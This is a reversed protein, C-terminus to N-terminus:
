TMKLPIEPLVMAMQTVSKFIRSGVSEIILLAYTPRM